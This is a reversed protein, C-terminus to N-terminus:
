LYLKRDLPLKTNREPKPHIVAKMKKTRVANRFENSDYGTDGILAKGNAHKLLDAAAIM